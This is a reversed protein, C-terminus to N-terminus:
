VSTREEEELTDNKQKGLNMLYLLFEGVGLLIIKSLNGELGRQM